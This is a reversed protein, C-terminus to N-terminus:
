MCSPVTTNIVNHSPQSRSMILVMAAFFPKLRKHKCSLLFITSFCKIKLISFTYHGGRSRIGRMGKRDTVTNCVVVSELLLVNRKPFFFVSQIGILFQPLQGQDSDVMGM